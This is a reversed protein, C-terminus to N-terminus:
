TFFFKVSFGMGSDQHASPWLRRCFPTWVRNGSCIITYLIVKNEELQSKQLVYEEVEMNWMKVKLKSLEKAVTLEQPEVLVADTRV